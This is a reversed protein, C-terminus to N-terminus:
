LVYSSTKCCMVSSIKPSSGIHYMFPTAVDSLPWSLSLKLTNKFNILIKWNTMFVITSWRGILFFLLSPKGKVFYPLCDIFKWLVNFFWCILIDQKIVVSFRRFNEVISGSLWRAMKSRASVEVRDNMKTMFWATECLCALYSTKSSSSDFGEHRSRLLSERFVWYM